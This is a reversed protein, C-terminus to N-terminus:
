SIPCLELPRDKQHGQRHVVSRGPFYGKSNQGASGELDAEKEVSQLYGKKKKM